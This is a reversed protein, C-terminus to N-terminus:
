NPGDESFEDLYKEKEFHVSPDSTKHKVVFRNYGYLQWFIILFLRNMVHKKLM